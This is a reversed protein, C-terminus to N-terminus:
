RTCNKRPVGNHYKTKDWRLDLVRLVLCRRYRLRRIETASPSKLRTVNGLYSICHKKTWDWWKTASGTGGSYCYEGPLGRIKYELDFFIINAREWNYLLQLKILTWISSNSLFSKCKTNLGITQAPTQAGTIYLIDGSRLQLPVRPDSSASSREEAQAKM